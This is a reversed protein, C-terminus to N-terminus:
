NLLIETILRRISNKTLFLTNDSIESTSYIVVTPCATGTFQVPVVSVSQVLGALQSVLLVGVDVSLAITSVVNDLMAVSVVGPIMVSRVYAPLPEPFVPMRLIEPLPDMVDVASVLSPSEPFPVMLIEPLPEQVEFPAGM